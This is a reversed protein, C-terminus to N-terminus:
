KGTQRRRVAALGALGLGLLALTGPEPVGTIEQGIKTLVAREFAAFTAATYVIGNSTRVNANYFNTVGSVGFDGEIALGNIVIGANQAAIVEAQTAACAQNFNPGSVPCNPDTNQVGDGSVDMVLRTGEFGNNVFSARGLAMGDQIDTGGDSLRAMSGIANAFNTIQAATTLQTWGIAQAANDSFQIVNVAIGGAGAFSLINSQVTANLFANQYGQRQLNYEATSISGSVDIVLSLELAVPVAQAPVTAFAGAAAITIATLAKNLKM